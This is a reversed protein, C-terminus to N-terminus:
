ATRQRPAQTPPASAQKCGRLDLSTLSSSLPLLAALSDETLRACGGLDLARLPQLGQTHQRRLLAAIPKLAGDTLRRCARLNLSELHRARRCVDGVDLDLVQARGRRLRRRRPSVQGARPRPVPARDARGNLARTALARALPVQANGAISLSRLSTCHEAVIQVSVNSMQRVDGLNLALLRGGASRAIAQVGLDSVRNCLELSLSTLAPLLAIQICLWLGNLSPTPASGRRLMICRRRPATLPPRPAAQACGADSIQRCGTLDLTHLARCGQSLARMSADGVLECFSLDLSALNACSQCVFAVGEDTLRMCSRLSLFDLEEASVAKIASFSFHHTFGGAWKQARPIDRSQERTRRSAPLRTTPPVEFTTALLYPLDADEMKENKRRDLVEKMLHAPLNEIAPIAHLHAALLDLCLSELSPQVRLERRKSADSAM